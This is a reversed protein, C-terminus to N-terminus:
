GARIYRIMPSRKCVIRESDQESRTRVWADIFSDIRESPVENAAALASAFAASDMFGCHRAHARLRNTRRSTRFEVVESM